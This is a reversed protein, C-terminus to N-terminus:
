KPSLDQSELRPRRHTCDTTGVDDSPVQVAHPRKGLVSRTVSEERSEEDIDTDTGACQRALEEHEDITHDYAAADWPYCYWADPVHAGALYLVDKPLDAKKPKLKNHVVAVALDSPADKALLERVCFALTTRSDDVEDVVLIRRGRIQEILNDDFWQLKKVQTRATCTTDDYLELSVTFIPVKIVTRLMRAPIFGGGGIAVIAHPKWEQIRASLSCITNHIQAYSFYIKGDAATSLARKREPAQKPEQVLNAEAM